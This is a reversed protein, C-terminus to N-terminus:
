AEVIHEVGVGPATLFDPAAYAPRPYDYFGRGSKVGLHGERLLPAIVERFAKSRADVRTKLVHDVTDLGIQDMMGFPGIRVGLNGMWSRDIDVVSAKGRALLHGAAGLYAMLMHNFLYGRTERTVEVPIQGLRRGLDLLFRVVAPDTGAHPMVDVVKAEFVDHFHFACFRAEDGAVDAIDSPLLYSTNTTLVTAPRWQGAFAAWAARKRELDETISESVFDVTEAFHGPDGTYSLKALADAVDTETAQGKRVLREAFRAHFARAVDLQEGAIDYTLVAFGSLAARLGIRQGLTGAGFVGFTEITRLEM